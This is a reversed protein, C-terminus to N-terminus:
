CVGLVLSVEDLKRGRSPIGIKSLVDVKKLRHLLHRLLKELVVLVTSYVLCVYWSSLQDQKDSRLFIDLKENVASNLWKLILHFNGAIAKISTM